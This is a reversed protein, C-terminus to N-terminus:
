IKQGIEAGGHMAAFISEKGAADGIPHIEPVLGNLEEVLKNEKESGVALVITDAPLFAFVNDRAPPEGADWYFNVGNETFSDVTCNPYLRVRYKILYEFLAAKKNRNVGRAIKSRTLVSVNKGREGLFLATELGVLRGGIIVIEQGVNVKGLMVDVAQVVNKGDAGPVNLTTPKSGTAVVVADPKVKQVIQATVKQNLFVNVGARKLGGSLYTILDAEQPVHSAVINWQGGLKGSKEYLSTDHGREALNRAAEMGALGGGIVMVKKKKSAPEIKYELEKGLAM